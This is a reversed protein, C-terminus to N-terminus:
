ADSFFVRPFQDGQDARFRSFECFVLAQIEDQGVSWRPDAQALARLQGALNLIVYDHKRLNLEYVTFGVVGAGAVFMLVLAFTIQRTLSHFFGARRQRSM